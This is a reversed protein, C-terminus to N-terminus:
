MLHRKTVINIVIIIPLYFTMYYLVCSVQQAFSVIKGELIAAVTYGYLFLLTSIYPYIYLFLVAGRSPRKKLRLSIPYIIVYLPLLLLGAYLISQWSYESYPM